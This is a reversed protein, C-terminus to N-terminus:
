HVLHFASYHIVCLLDCNESIDLEDVQIKLMELDIVLYQQNTLSLFISCWSASCPESLSPNSPSLNMM